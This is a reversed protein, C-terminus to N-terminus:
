ACSGCHTLCSMWRVIEAPNQSYLEDVWSNTDPQVSATRIPVVRDPGIAIQGDAFDIRSDGGLGTTWIDVAKVRTRWQGVVAGEKQLRSFGDDLYAIDTSTGGIDMTLVYPFEYRRAIRAAGHVGATPGSNYTNLAKTKAVRALGGSSHVVLLPQRYGRTRVAEDCKYLYVVLQRHLYGSISHPM